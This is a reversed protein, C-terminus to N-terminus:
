EEKQEEKFYKVYEEFTKSYIDKYETKGAITYILSMIEEAKDKDGSVKYHVYLNLFSPIYCLNLYDVDPQSIDNTFNYSLYDKLFLKEYNKEIVAINDYKEKSYKFALGESYLNEKLNETFTANLVVSFYIPRDTVKQTIYEAIAQAYKNEDSYDSLKKTFPEIKLEKFITEKYKDSQCGYAMIITVDRRIGMVYQLVWEPCVLNDGTVILIAKKDLPMLVNYNFSLYGPSFDNSNYWKKMMRKMNTTDMITGYYGAYSNIAEVRTTDMDYAKKLYPMLSDKNQANGNRFKVINFEYSDPVNKEMQNVIDVMKKAISSTFGISNSDTATMKYFRTAEYYNYWADANKSNKDIEKKWLESQEKYWAATKYIKIISYVKEPKSNQANSKTNIALSMAIIIISLCIKRMPITKFNIFLKLLASYSYYLKSKIQNM